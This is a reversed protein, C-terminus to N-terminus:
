KLEERILRGLAKAQDPTLDAQRRKQFAFLLYVTEGDKDWYYLVRLGGRKGRGPQGWRLKRLGQGGPVLAGQEPRLVLALQLRRYEDDPLLECIQRTFVPTEVVIM